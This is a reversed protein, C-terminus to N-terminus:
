DIFKSIELDKFGSCKYLNDITQYIIKCGLEKEIESHNRKYSILEEKSTINIGYRNPSVIKPSCSLFTVNCNKEKFKRIISKSVTGRVISDDVILVNDHNFHHNLFNFKNEVYKEREEQSPMIFTRKNLVMPEFYPKKLLRAIELAYIRASNPVCCVVDITTHELLKICTKAIRLRFDRVNLGYITSKPHSLYIYEFICPQLINTTQYSSIVGKELKVIQGPQVDNIFEIGNSHFYNDESSFIVDDGKRGYCGPRIGHKDKFAYICDEYIMLVFFSGNVNNIVHKLTEIIDGRHYNIIYDLLGYTDSYKHVLDVNGNHVLTINNKTVPQSNGIDIEGSTRYRTHAIAINGEIVKPQEKILSMHKEINLGDSYGYSDQGRHQIDLLRCYLKSRINKKTYIGTIGCM